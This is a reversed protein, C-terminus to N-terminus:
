FRQSLDVQVVDVQYRPGVIADASGYRAALTLREALGVSVGVTYGKLNTGGLGFDSDNLADLVADSEVRRYEVSASWSGRAEQAGSGVALRGTYAYPGGAFRSCGTGSCAARNNLAVAEVHRRSFGENWALEGDLTAKLAELPQLEVRLTGAVERFSSALGFYQYRAAQGVAEAVLAADSPTRLAMTTNGKQMVVPRTDDTDCTIGKLHTDCPGSVHGEVGYFDYYAAGLTVALIPAPRWAAGLQAGFLWRNRSALKSSREAPFALSTTYLPFAGGSAFASVGGGLAARGKLAAGDFNVSDSWIM